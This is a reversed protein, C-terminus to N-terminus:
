KDLQYPPRTNSAIIGITRSKTTMTKHNKKAHSDGIQVALKGKIATHMQSTIQRISLKDVVLFSFFQEAAWRM